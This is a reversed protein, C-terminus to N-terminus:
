NGSEYVKLLEKFFFPEREHQYNYEMIANVIDWKVNDMIGAPLQHEQLYDSIKPVVEADIVERGQKAFENWQKYKQPHNAFLYETLKNREELSVKEWYISQSRKAAKAWSKEYTMNLTIDAAINAKVPHGSNAFWQISKIKHILEQDM